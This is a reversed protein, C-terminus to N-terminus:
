EDECGNGRGRGLMKMVLCGEECVGVAVDGRCLVKGETGCVRCERQRVDGGNGGHRRLGRRLEGKGMGGPGLLARDHLQLRIANDTGSWAIGDGPHTTLTAASAPAISTAASTSPTTEAAGFGPWEFGGLGWGDGDGGAAHSASRSTTTGGAAAAAAAATATAPPTTSLLSTREADWASSERDPATPKFSGGPVGGTVATDLTGMAANNVSVIGMAGLRGTSNAARTLRSIARSSSPRTTTTTATTTPAASADLDTDAHIETGMEVTASTRGNGNGEEECEGKTCPPDALHSATASTTVYASTAMIRTVTAFATKTKKASRATRTETNMYPDTTTTTATSLSPSISPGTLSGHASTPLALALASSLFALTSPFHM